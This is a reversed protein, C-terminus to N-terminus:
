DKKTEREDDESEKRKEKEKEKRIEREQVVVNVTKGREMREGEKM